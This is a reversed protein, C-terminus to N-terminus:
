RDKPGPGYSASTFAGNFGHGAGDNAKGEAAWYGVLGDSSHGARAVGVALFSLALVALVSAVVMSAKKM